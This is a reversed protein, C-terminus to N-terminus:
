LASGLDKPKGDWVPVGARNLEEMNFICTSAQLKLTGAGKRIFQPIEKMALSFSEENPYLATGNTDKMYTRYKRYCQATALVLVPVGGLESLSYDMDEQLRRTDSKDLKTMDAFVTLVKVFEPLTAQALVEMGLYCAGFMEKFLEEFHQKFLEEGFVSVLVRRMVRLGFFSVTSNFIPRPRMIARLRMEEATMKGQEVKELDDPAPLFRKNAWALAKDFDELAAHCDGVGVVHTAIELGLSAMPETDSYFEMANRYADVQARGSLRKFSVMISREVIATETEPAEAVFVVPASLKITSLANFSDKQTKSGGGRQVEKANFADRFVARMQNLKEANMTHPKYEDVLLPISASGSLMQQLAFMTSNPTTETIDQRHYFMRLLGRTTDTKGNGAPGYVQLLPFKGHKQQFLPAYFSAVAWGLMKGMVEPTHSQILAKFCSLTRDLGNERSLLEELRPAALLDTRFLGRPDPFGQFVVKFGDDEFSTAARVGQRDAWAIYEKKQDHAGKGIRFLNVGESDIIYETTTVEKLMAQYVGRAQIDSGSFSGGFYAIANQLASGSSFTTPVFNAESVKRGRVIVDARISYIVDEEALKQIAVRSFVFNSIPVDGAEGKAALYSTTGRYVGGFDMDPISVEGGEAYYDDMDLDGEVGEAVLEPQRVVCKKLGQVSYDFSPNDELYWFMRRLEAARRHPTNYRMGDSQHNQIIGKCYELLQDETWGMERAYLCLQMAIVNFGGETEVTGSALKQFVPLQQQLVDKPVPKSVRPKSKSVKQYAEDFLLAFKARWQPSHGNVQRPAKCLEAYNDPTLAQLEDLTIPVKYNGNERQNYCTRFQRGRKATYVRFDMSDVAVKFAMEKYMAVLGQTPLPKNMFCQEPIVVHLGKKGSLFVQLDSATLDLAQLKAVLRKADSISEGIDDSDLDFYMPGLYKAKAILEKDTDKSILTDVALITVFTPKIQDISLNAQIPIWPEDGGTPQYYRYLTTAAM